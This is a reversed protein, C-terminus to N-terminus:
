AVVDVVRRSRERGAGGARSEMMVNTRTLTQIGLQRWARARTVGRRKAGGGDTGRGREDLERRRFLDHEFRSQLLAADQLFDEVRDFIEDGIRIEFRVRHLSKLELRHIGGVDGEDRQPEVGIPEFM